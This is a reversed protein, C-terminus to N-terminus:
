YDYVYVSDLQNKDSFTCVNNGAVDITQIYGSGPDYSLVQGGSVIQLDANSRVETHKGQVTLEVYKGDSYTIRLPTGTASGNGSCTGGNSYITQIKFDDKRRKGGTMMWHDGTKRWTYSASVVHLELSGNRVRIPPEEDASLTSLSRFIFFATVAGLAAATFLAARHQRWASCPRGEITVPRSAKTPDDM